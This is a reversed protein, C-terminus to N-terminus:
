NKPLCALLEPPTELTFKQVVGKLDQFSLHNALLWVRQLGLKENKLQLKRAGYLRDGVLPHGYAFFHVRIQHTRGTKIQVRVLSYNIFKKVVDFKTEATRAKIWSDINGQDRGRPSKRLLLEETGAPLAAMRHGDRARSISFNILGNEQKLQGHVLALYEKHITRNKFQNKLNSFSPNNKAVVMLGSVEKDLRHVIGPRTEDEGINKIDPYKLLLWDILTPEQINGGGHVALGAPKDIVLYDATETIIKPEPMNETPSIKKNMTEHKVTLFSM